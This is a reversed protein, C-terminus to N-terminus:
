AHIYASEGSTTWQAFSTYMRLMQVHSKPYLSFHTSYLDYLFVCFTLVILGSLATSYMKCFHSVIKKEIFFHCLM